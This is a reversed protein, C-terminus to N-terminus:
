SILWSFSNILLKKVEQLVVINSAFKTAIYVIININIACPHHRSILASQCHRCSKLPHHHRQCTLTVSMTNNLVKSHTFATRDDCLIVVAAATTFSNTVFSRFHNAYCSFIEMVDARKQESRSTHTTLPM